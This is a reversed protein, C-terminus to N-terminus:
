FVSRAVSSFAYFRLCLSALTSACAINSLIIDVINTVGDGASHTALRSCVHWNSLLRNVDWITVLRRSDISVMIDVSLACLVNLLAM